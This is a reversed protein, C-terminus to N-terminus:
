DFTAASSIVGVHMLFLARHRPRSFRSLLCQMSYSEDSTLEFASVGVLKGKCELPITNVTAELPIAAVRNGPPLVAWERNPMGICTFSSETQEIRCFEGTASRIFAVVKIM